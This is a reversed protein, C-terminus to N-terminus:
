KEVVLNVLEVFRDILNLDDQHFCYIDYNTISIRPCTRYQQEDCYQQKMFNVLQRVHDDQDSALLFYGQDDFVCYKAYGMEKLDRFVSNLEVMQDESRVECEFVILPKWLQLIYKNGSIIKFDFGDTDIKVFSASSSFEDLKKTQIITTGNDNTEFYSTGSCYKIWGKLMQGDSALCKFLTINNNKFVLANQQLYEFFYDSPEILVLDAKCHSAIIAATDGVNAGIDLIPKSPYKESILAAAVGLHLDRRPQQQQVALLGHQSPISLVYDQIKISISTQKQHHRIARRAYISELVRGYLTPSVFRKLLSKVTSKKYLKM